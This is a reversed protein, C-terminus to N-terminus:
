AARGAPRLGRYIEAVVDVFKKPSMPDLSDARVRRSLTVVHRKEGEKTKAGEPPVLDYAKRPVALRVNIDSKKAYKIKPPKTKGSRSRRLKKRERISDTVSWALLSGDQLTARGSMWPDSYSTEVYSGAGGGTGKAKGRLNPGISYPTETVKKSEATPKKLDLRLHVPADRAFDERFIALIPLATGRLNDSLDSKKAAFRMLLTIVTAALSLLFLAAYAASWGNQALVLSVVCMAPAALTLCGLPVSSLQTAVMQDYKAVPTLLGILAGPELLLDAEKSVVIKKQEPTLARYALWANM